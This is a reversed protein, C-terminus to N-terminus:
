KGPGKEIRERLAALAKQFQPDDAARPPGPVQVGYKAAVATFAALHAPPVEHTAFLSVIMARAQQETVTADVDPTIGGEDSAPSGHGGPQHPREINRGNPTFYHATTLKLRIPLKKWTYVTNVYGKGFTRVGVIAARGHDQLCGAFVESASASADNVLVVLPLDPYRCQDAKAETTELVQNRRRTSVITGTPQFARAMAVCEDLNGGGNFRLDIVLGRLTGQKKLAEIAAGVDDAVGRHFDSIYLYGLGLAPDAMHVWKVPSQRVGGRRMTLELESDGRAITFRVDTDAAGRVLDAAQRNRTDMPMADLRTGDVAILRDGPLVGAREAPSGAFPFYVVVDEGHQVMLLGVGEYRGSNREDYRAVKDPAVYESYDDLGDVMAGIARDLLAHGDQPEVHSQLIEDFVVQLAKGQPDPLELEGRGGLLLGVVFAAVILAWNAVLFWLPLRTQQEM